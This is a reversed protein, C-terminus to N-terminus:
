IQLQLTDKKRTAFANGHKSNEIKKGETKREMKRTKNDKKEASKKEKKM